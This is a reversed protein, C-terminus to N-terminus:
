IILDTPAGTFLLHYIEQYWTVKNDCKAVVTAIHAINELKYSNDKTEAEQQRLGEPFIGPYWKRGCSIEKLDM